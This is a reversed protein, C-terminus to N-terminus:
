GVANSRNKLKKKSFQNQELINRVDYLRFPLFDVTRNSITFLFPFVNRGIM